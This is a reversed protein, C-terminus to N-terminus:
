LSDCKKNEWSERGCLACAHAMVAKVLGGDVPQSINSADIKYSGNIVKKDSRAKARSITASSGGEDSSIAFRDYQKSRLPDSTGQLFVPKLSYGGEMVSVVRPCTEALSKTLWHFDAESLFHYMDDYHADFGSSLLLLDAGFSELKPILRRTVKSKLENSAIRSYEERQKNSLESRTRAKKSVSNNDTGPGMPTLCINIINPSVQESEMEEGSCPYFSPGGFLHISSFLVEKSDDENLWPKYSPISVPAWSSPLPLFISRPSLNRVIDETGNGLELFTLLHFSM